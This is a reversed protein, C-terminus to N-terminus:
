IKKRHKKYRPAPVGTKIIAPGNAKKIKEKLEEEFNEGEVKELFNKNVLWKSFFEAEKETKIKLNLCM